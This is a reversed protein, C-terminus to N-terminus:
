ASHQFVRGPVNLRQLVALPLAGIVIVDYSM